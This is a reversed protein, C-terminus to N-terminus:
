RVARDCRSKTALDEGITPTPTADDELRLNLLRYDVVTRFAQPKWEGTVPNRRRPKPIILLPSSTFSKGRKVVGADALAQVQKAAVSLLAHGMRRHQPPPPKMNPKLRLEIGYEAIEAETWRMIPNDNVVGTDDADFWKRIEDGLADTFITSLYDIL